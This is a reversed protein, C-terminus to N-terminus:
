EDSKEMGMLLVLDTMPELKEDQINANFWRGRPSMSFRSDVVVESDCWGDITCTSRSDFSCFVFRDCVIPDLIGRDTVRRVFRNRKSVRTKIQYKRGAFVFDIGGDGSNLEEMDNSVRLRKSNLYRLVSYEGVMGVMVADTIVGNKWTSRFSSYSRHNKREKALRELYNLDGRSLKIVVPPPAVIGKGEAIM